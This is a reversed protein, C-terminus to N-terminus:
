PPEPGPYRPFRQADALIGELRGAGVTGPVPVYVSRAEGRGGDHAERVALM